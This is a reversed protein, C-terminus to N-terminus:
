VDIYLYMCICMGTTNISLKKINDALSTLKVKELAYILDNWTESCEKLLWKELVERCRQETELNSAKINALTMIDTHDDLM